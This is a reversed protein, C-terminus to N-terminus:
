QRVRSALRCRCKDVQHLEVMNGCPDNLFLQESEPDTLGKLSWYQVGMRDLEAKTEVIDAVAMAVHPRTPDEGPGRAVPSPQDGGILHIQGVEGVNIWMGPIGPITPRGEDHALGLVGSYFDQLAAMSQDKADIRVGTHHLEVVKIAM